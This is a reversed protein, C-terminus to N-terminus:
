SWRPRFYGNSRAGMHSPWGQRDFPIFSPCEFLNPDKGKSLGCKCHLRIRYVTMQGMPIVMPYTDSISPSSAGESKGRQRVFKDSSETIIPIWHTAFVLDMYKNSEVGPDKPSVSPALSGTSLLRLLGNNPRTAHVERKQEWSNLRPDNSPDAIGHGWGHKGVSHIRSPYPIDKSEEEEGAPGPMGEDNSEDPAEGGNMSMESASGDGYVEWFDPHELIFNRVESVSDVTNNHELALRDESNYLMVGPPSMFRGLAYMQGTQSSNTGFRLRCVDASTKEPVTGNYLKYQDMSGSHGRCNTSWYIFLDRGPPGHLSLTIPSGLPPGAGAIFPSGHLLEGTKGDLIAVQSYYFTPYGPGTHFRVIVDPINDENFYGFAPSSFTESHSPLAHTWITRLTLGDFALVSSNCTALVIDEAGDGNLDALAPPAILERKTDQFLLRAKIGNKKKRRRKGRNMSSGERLLERINVVYLSGPGTRGSITLLLSSGGDPDYLIRPPTLSQGKEGPCPASGIVAGGNGSVLWMRSWLPDGDGGDTGSEVALIDQVGDGDMDEVFQATFLSALEKRQSWVRKTEGFEWIISGDHGNVACFVGGRGTAVCDNVSDSTIDASCDLGFVEHRLPRRWLTNGTEGDLALIGGLCEGSATSAGNSSFYVPCVWKPVDYGDAGTGYGLVVDLVGDKNVDMLRISSETTLKPFSKTWVDQTELSTCPLYDVSIRPMKWFPAIDSMSSPYSNVMCVVLVIVGLLVALALIGYCCPACFIRCPPGKCVDAHM